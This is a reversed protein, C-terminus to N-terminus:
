EQNELKKEKQIKRLDKEQWYRFLYVIFAAFAAIYWLMLGKTAEIDEDDFLVDGFMFFVVVGLTMVAIIGAFTVPGHERKLFEMFKEFLVVTIQEAAKGVAGWWGGITIVACIASVLSLTFNWWEHDQSTRYAYYASAILWLIAWKETVLENLKIISDNIVGSLNLSDRMSQMLTSGGKNNVPNPQDPESPATPAAPEVYPRVVYHDPVYEPVVARAKVRALPDPIHISEEEHKWKIDWPAVTVAFFTLSGFFLHPWYTDAGAIWCVITMILTFGSLGLAILQIRNFRPM